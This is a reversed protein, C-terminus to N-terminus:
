RQIFYLYLACLFERHMTNIVKRLQKYEKQLIMEYICIIRYNENQEKKLSYNDM